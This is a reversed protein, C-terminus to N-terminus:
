FKFFVDFIILLIFFFIAAKVAGQQGFIKSLKKDFWATSGLETISLGAWYNFVLNFISLRILVSAIVVKWWNKDANYAAGLTYLVDLFVGDRHWRKIRNNTLEGNARKDKLLYSSADKGALFLKSILLYLQYIIFM